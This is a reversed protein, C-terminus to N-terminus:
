KSEFSGDGIHFNEGAVEIQEDLPNRPAEIRLHEVVDALTPV